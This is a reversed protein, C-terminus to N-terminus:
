FFGDDDYFGNCIMGRLDERLIWRDDDDFPLSRIMSVWQGGSPPM